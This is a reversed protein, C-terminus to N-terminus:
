PTPAHMPPPPSPPLSSPPIPTPQVQAPNPPAPPVPDSGAPPPGPEAPRGPPPAPPLGPYLPTGDPAYRPAGYPPAGPYPIPGPAPGERNNFTPPEPEARTVPFYNAYGPFGIGPNPRIDVGTGWGSNTVLYRVPLNKTVDPLEGCSPAGGPGGKIGNIPLHDPYRYPDDGLLLATDLIASYGNRGGAVDAFGMDLVTKGGVLTCTLIPNYKMLLRTTSELMNVGSVLNDKNPGILEIGSRSLGIVDVLLADLAQANGTITASTTSAADLVTLVDQAAAAFTNSFDRLGRFDQRITESRPNLESLVQNLDTVTQGLEDGKGRVGDAVASLVANLKTVDVQNLVGVLNDFVTNVEVTVDSSRLVAGAALRKPSPDSPTRLEVFKGGFATPATIQAGVNAPIYKLQDPYLELELKVPDKGGGTHISAVRGVPVGRLQVEAYPETLLGARGSLLTVRAYSQFDRNFAIPTIVIVVLAMVAVILTWWAPHLGLERRKPTM